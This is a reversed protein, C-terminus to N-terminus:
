SQLHFTVLLGRGGIARGAEAPNARGLFGTGQRRIEIEGAGGAHEKSGGVLPMTWTGEYGSHRAGFPVLGQAALQGHDADHEEFHFVMSCLAAKRVETVVCQSGAHGIAGKDHHSGKGAVAAARSSYLVYSAVVQDGISPGRRGLDLARDAFRKAIVTAETPAQRGQDFGSGAAAAGM